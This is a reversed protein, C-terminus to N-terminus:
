VIISYATEFIRWKASGSAEVWFQSIAEIGHELQFCGALVICEVITISKRTTTVPMRLLRM